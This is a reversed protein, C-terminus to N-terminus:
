AYRSTDAQTKMFDWEGTEIITFFYLLLLLRKMTQQQLDNREEGTVPDTIVTQHKQGFPETIASIIGDIKGTADAAINEFDEFDNIGNQDADVGGSAVDLQTLGDNFADKYTEYYTKTTGHKDVYTTSKNDFSDIANTYDEIHQIFEQKVTHYDNSADNENSSLEVGRASSYANFNNSIIAETSSLINSLRTISPNYETDINATANDRTDQAAQIALNRANTANQVALDRADQLDTIEIATLPAAANIIADNMKQDEEATLDNLKQNEEAVTAAYADQAAQSASNKEIVLQDHTAEINTNILNTDAKLDEPNTESAIDNILSDLNGHIAQTEALSLTNGQKALDLVEQYGYYHDANQILDKKENLVTRIPNLSNIYATIGERIAHIVTNKLDNNFKTKDINIGEYSTETNTPDISYNFLTLLTHMEKVSGLAGDESDFALLGDPNDIIGQAKEVVQNGIANIILSNTTASIMPPTPSDDVPITGDKKPNPLKKTYSRANTKDAEITETLYIGIIAKYYSYDDEMETIVKNAYSTPDTDFEPLRVTFPSNPKSANGAGPNAYIAGGPQIETILANLKSLLNPDDADMAKIDIILGSNNKSDYLNTYSNIYSQYNTIENNLEIRENNLKISYDLPRDPFESLNNEFYTLEDLRAQKKDIMRSWTRAQSEFMSFLNNKLANIKEDVVELESGTFSSRTEVLLKMAEHPNERVFGQLKNRPPKDNGNELINQIEKSIDLFQEEVGRFIMSEVRSDAQSINKDGSLIDFLSRNDEFTIQADVKASRVLTDLIATARDFSPLTAPPIIEQSNHIYELLKDFAVTGGYKDQLFQLFHGNNFKELENIDITENELIYNITKNDLRLGGANFLAEVYGTSSATGFIVDPNFTLTEGKYTTNTSSLPSLSGGDYIYRSDFFKDEIAELTLKLLEVDDNIDVLKAPKKYRDFHEITIEDLVFLEDISGTNGYQATWVKDKIVDFLADNDTGGFITQEYENLLEDLSIFKIRGLEADIEKESLSADAKVANMLDLRLANIVTPHLELQRHALMYDKLFEPRMIEDKSNFDTFSGDFYENNIEDLTSTYLYNLESITEAFDTVENTSINTETIIIPRPKYEFIYKTTSLFKSQHDDFLKQVMVENNTIGHVSKARNIFEDFINSIGVSSISDIYNEFIENDSQQQLRYIEIRKESDSITSVNITNIQDKLLSNRLDDDLHIQGISIMEKLYEERVEHDTLSRRSGTSYDYKDPFNYHDRVETTTKPATNEISGGFAYGYREQLSENGISTLTKNRFRTELDRVNFIANINAVIDQIFQNPDLGATNIIADTRKLIDDGDAAIYDTGVYAKVDNLDAVMTDARGQIDRIVVELDGLLDDQFGSLDQQMDEKIENLRSEATKQVYNKSNYFSVNQLDANGDGDLDVANHQDIVGDGDQDIGYNVGEYVNYLAENAGDITLSNVGLDNEGVMRNMSALLDFIRTELNSTFADVSAGQSNNNPNVSSM